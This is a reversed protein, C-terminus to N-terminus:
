KNYHVEVGAADLDANMPPNCKSLKLEISEIAPFTRLLGKVIRGCVHELLKSPIDMEVRLVEYVEAYNVTHAVDDTTSAQTIDVKLRLNIIFNNGTIREQEAVGHYAFFRINDLYIYSDM